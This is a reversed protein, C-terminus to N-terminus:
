LSFFPYLNIEEEKNLSVTDNNWNEPECNHKKKFRNYMIIYSNTKHYQEGRLFGSLFKDDLNDKINIPNHIRGHFSDNISSFYNNYTKCRLFYDAEHFQITCFHEDFLGIKKICNRNFFLIEDGCGLTIFTYGFMKYSLYLMYLTKSNVNADNHMTVCFDNDPDSFCNILAFNYDKSLNGYSNKCRTNNFVINLPIGNNDITNKNIETVYFEDVSNVIINITSKINIKNKLYFISEICRNLTYNFIENNKYTIIYIEM